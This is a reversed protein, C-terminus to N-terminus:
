FLKTKINIDVKIGLIFSTKGSLGVNLNGKSDIQGYPRTSIKQKEIQKGNMKQDRFTIKKPIPLGLYVSNSEHGYGKTEFTQGATIGM